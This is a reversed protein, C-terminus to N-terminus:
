EASPQDRGYRPCSSVCCREVESGNVKYILLPRRCEPCLKADSLPWGNEDLMTSNRYM